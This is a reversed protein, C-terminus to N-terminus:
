EAFTYGEISARSRVAQSNIFGMDFGSIKKREGAKIVEYITRRNSDMVTGSNGAHECLVRIDKIPKGTDNFIVFSAKFSSFDGKVWNYGSLHVNYSGEVKESRRPADFTIAAPHDFSEPKIPEAVSKQAESVMKTSLYALAMLIVFCVLVLAGLFRLVSFIANMATLRATM